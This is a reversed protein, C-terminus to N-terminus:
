IHRLSMLSIVNLTDRKFMPLLNTNILAQIGSVAAEIFTDNTQTVYVYTSINKYLNNM